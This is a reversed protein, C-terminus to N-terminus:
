SPSTWPGEQGQTVTVLTSALLWIRGGDTGSRAMSGRGQGGGAPLGAEPLEFYRQGDESGKLDLAGQPAAPLDPCDAKGIQQYGSHGLPFMDDHQVVVCVVVEDRVDSPLRHL